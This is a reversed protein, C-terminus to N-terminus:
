AGKLFAAQAQTDAQAPLLHVKQCSYGLRQLVQRMGRESYSIGFQEPVFAAVQKASQFAHKDLEALLHQTQEQTLFGESGGSQLHCLAELGGAEYLNLWTIVSPESVRLIQAIARHTLGDAKLLVCHIRERFRTNKETKFRAELEIYQADTLTLFRKM